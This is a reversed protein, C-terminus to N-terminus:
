AFIEKAARVFIDKVQKTSLGIKELDSITKFPPSSDIRLAIINEARKPGIGKLLLLEEKSAINLVELYENELSKKLTSGLATFKNLPTNDCCIEEKDSIINKKIPTTNVNLSSLVNQISSSSKKAKRDIKEKEELEVVPADFLKRSVFHNNTTTIKNSRAADTRKQCTKSKPNPTKGLVGCSSFIKHTSKCKGKSEIWVRLKEEMDVKIRPTEM